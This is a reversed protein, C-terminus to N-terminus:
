ANGASIKFLNALIINVFYHQMSFSHFNHSCACFIKDLHQFLTNNSQNIMSREGSVTLNLLIKIFAKFIDIHHQFNVNTTFEYLM